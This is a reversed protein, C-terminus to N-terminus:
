LSFVRLSNREKEAGHQDVIQLRSEVPDFTVVPGNVKDAANKQHQNTDQHGGPSKPPKQTQEALSTSHFVLFSNHDNQKDKGQYQAAGTHKVVTQPSVLLIIMVTKKNKM